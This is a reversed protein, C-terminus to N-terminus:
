YYSLYLNYYRDINLMFSFNKFIDLFLIEKSKCDDQRVSNTYEM